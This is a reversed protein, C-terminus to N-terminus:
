NAICKVPYGRDAGQGIAKKAAADMQLLGCHLEFSFAKGKKRAEDDKKRYRYKERKNGLGRDGRSREAL